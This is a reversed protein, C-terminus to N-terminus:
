APFEFTVGDNYDCLTGNPHYYEFAGNESVVKMGIKAGNPLRYVFVRQNGKRFPADVTMVPSGWEDKMVQSGDSSTSVTGMLGAEWRESRGEPDHRGPAYVTKGDTLLYIGGFADQVLVVDDESSPTTPSGDTDCARQPQKASRPNRDAKGLENKLLEFAEIVLRTKEHAKAQLEGGATFRDPHWVMLAQGYAKKLSASTFPVSLELLNLADKHTM